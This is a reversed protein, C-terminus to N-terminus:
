VSWSTMASSDKGRTPQIPKGARGVGSEVGPSKWSREGMRVWGFTRAFKWLM